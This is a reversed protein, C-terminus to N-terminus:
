AFAVHSSVQVTLLLTCSVIIGILVFDDVKHGKAFLNGSGKFELFTLGLCYNPGKLITM